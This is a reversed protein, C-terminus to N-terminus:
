RRVFVCDDGHVAVRVDQNPNHFLAGSHKGRRFGGLEGCILTVYDVQWIHSADHTGCMRKILRGVTKVMNRVIKRQFRCKRSEPQFYVRSVGYRRLTLPKGESSSGVSM